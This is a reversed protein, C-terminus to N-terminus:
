LCLKGVYESVCVSMHLCVSVHLCLSVVAEVISIQVYKHQFVERGQEWRGTLLLRLLLRDTTM